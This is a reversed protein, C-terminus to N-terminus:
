LFFGELVTFDFSSETILKLFSTIFLCIFAMNIIKQWSKVFHPVVSSDENVWCTLVAASLLPLHLFIYSNIKRLFAMRYALDQCM